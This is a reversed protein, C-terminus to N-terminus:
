VRLKNLSRSVRNYDIAKYKAVADNKSLFHSLAWVLADLRDPSKKSEMPVYTTMEDELYRLSEKALHFVKGQEYMAEVPEARAHKSQSAHVEIIKGFFGKLKLIEQVMGGGQNTEVIIANAKYKKNAAIVADGWVGPTAKLSLDDIVYFNRDSAMAVVVIGCLDSDEKSKTSPDVGIVVSVIGLEDKLELFSSYKSMCSQILDINWIAGDVDNVYIGHLFRDRQRKPLSGLVDTIYNDPLNESNDTPNMLVSAYLSEDQPEDTIPDVHDYFVKYTWHRKTPPNCDLFFRNTLGSNEALRTKLLSFSDYDIQSCENAYITSYENGLIKETREKSDVGGLWIESGNPLSIFWDSKQPKYDVEPFCLSMMKPFTDYWISTKVHNFRWRAILHRSPVKLARVVIARVAYFTKGSRSGGVLLTHLHTSMIKAAETQKETLKFINGLGAM